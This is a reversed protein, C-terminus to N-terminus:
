QADIVKEYARSVLAILINLMVVSSVLVGVMFFATAVGIPVSYDTGFIDLDFEGWSM